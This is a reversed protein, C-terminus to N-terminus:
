EHKDEKGKDEKGKDEVEEGGEIKVRPSAGPQITITIPKDKTSVRM